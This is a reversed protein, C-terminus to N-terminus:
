CAKTGLRVPLQVFVPFEGNYYNGNEKGNHRCPGLLVVGIYGSYCVIITYVRSEKLPTCLSLARFFSLSM